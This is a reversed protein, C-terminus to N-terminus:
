FQLAMRTKRIEKSAYFHVNCLSLAMQPINEFVDASHGKM